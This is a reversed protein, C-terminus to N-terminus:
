FFAHQFQLQYDSLHASLANLTPLLLILPHSPGHINVTSHQEHHFSLSASIRWRGLSQIFDKLWRWAHRAENSISGIAHRYAHEVLSGGLLANIFAIVM